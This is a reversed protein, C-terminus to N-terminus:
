SSTKEKGDGRDGRLHGEFASASPDGKQVADWSGQGSFRRGTRQSSRPPGPCAPDLSSGPNINVNGKPCLRLPSVTDHGGRPPCCVWGKSPTAVLHVCTKRLRGTRARFM